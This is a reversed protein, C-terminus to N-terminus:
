LKGAARRVDFSQEALKDIICDVHAIYVDYIKGDEGRVNFNYLIEDEPGFFDCVVTNERKEDPPNKEFEERTLKKFDAIDRIQCKIIEKRSAENRIISVAFTGASVSYEYEIRNYKVLFNMCYIGFASLVILITIGLFGLFYFLLFAILLLGCIIATFILPLYPNKRGKVFYETVENFM